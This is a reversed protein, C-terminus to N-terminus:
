NLQENREALTDILGVREAMEDFRGVKESLEVLHAFQEGDEQGSAGGEVAAELENLREVAFQSGVYAARACVMVLFMYSGCDDGLDPRIRGPRVSWHRFAAASLTMALPVLVGYDGTAAPNFTKRAAKQGDINSCRILRGGKYWAKGLGRDLAVRNQAEEKFPRAVHRELAVNVKFMKDCRVRKVVSERCIIERKM